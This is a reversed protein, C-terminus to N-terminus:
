RNRDKRASDPIQLGAPPLTAGGATRASASQIASEPHLERQLQEGPVTTPYWTSITAELERLRAQLREREALVADQHLQVAQQSGAEARSAAASVSELDALALQVQGQIIEFHIRMDALETATAENRSDMEALASNLETEIALLQGSVRALSNDVSQQMDAVSNDVSQQQDALARTMGENQKQMDGKTAIGFVSCGSLSGLLLMALMYRLATRM